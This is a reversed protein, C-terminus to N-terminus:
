NGQKAANRDSTVVGLESGESRALQSAKSHLAMRLTRGRAQRTFPAQSFSLGAVNSIPPKPTTTDVSRNFHVPSPETKSAYRSRKPGTRNESPAPAFHTLRTRARSPFTRDM